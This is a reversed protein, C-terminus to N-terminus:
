LRLTRLESSGFYIKESFIVKDNQRIEVLHTGVEVELVEPDGNFRKAEGLAKSDLYLVAGSPANAVLIRPHTTPIIVNSHPEQCGVLVMTAAVLFLKAKMM